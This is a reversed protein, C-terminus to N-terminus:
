KCVNLCEVFVCCCQLCELTAACCRLCDLCFLGCSHSKTQDALTSSAKTENQFSPPQAPGDSSIGYADAASDNPQATSYAQPVAFPPDSKDTTM